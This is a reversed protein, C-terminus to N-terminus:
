KVKSILKEWLFVKIKVKKMFFRKKEGFKGFYYDILEGNSIKRKKYNWTFYWMTYNQFELLFCKLKGAGYFPSTIFVRVHQM